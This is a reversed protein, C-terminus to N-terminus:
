RASAPFQLLGFVSIRVSGLLARAVFEPENDSRLYPPAGRESILRSLV